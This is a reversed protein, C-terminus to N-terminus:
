WSRCRWTPSSWRRWRVLGLAAIGPIKLTALLRRSEGAYFTGLELQAGDPLAAVTVENLVDLGTVYPGWSIRLSAAQAVQDLLGDVEGAILATATDAEEAFLENGDGGHALARLLTEDYGLGVGLTTTRIGISSHKAAVPGLRSPDREGANAQGDSILLLTAGTPGLVRQAEQLGRFYGASLDTSGGPQLAAIAHKVFGKDTLPGAPVVLQVQDDFAVVGFSDAPDLRDVLQLLATQAAQLRGGAMSGSRDLVVVLTAPQRQATTAPTPATLEVLLTLEDTQEVAVLDVDLLRVPARASGPTPVHRLCHAPSACKCSSSPPPRHRPRRHQTRLRRLVRCLKSRLDTLAPQARGAPDPSSASSTSRTRRAGPPWRPTSSRRRRARLRTRDHHWDLADAAYWVNAQPRARPHGRHRRGPGLGPWCSPSAWRRARPQHGHPLAVARRRGPGAGLGGGAWSVAREFWEAPVRQGADDMGHHLYRIAPAHHLLLEADSWESRVDVVHTVGLHVLEMLQILGHSRDHGDLDRGRSSRTVFSLNAYRAQPLTTM